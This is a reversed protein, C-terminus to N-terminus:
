RAFRIENVIRDAYLTLSDEIEKKLVGPSDTYDEIPHIVAGAFYDAREWIKIKSRNSFLVAEVDIAVQAKKGSSGMGTRLGWKKVRLVITGGVEALQKNASSETVSMFKGSSTLGEKLYRLLFSQCNLDVLQPKLRNATASDASAHFGQQIATGIVGGTFYGADKPADKLLVVSFDEVVVVEVAIDKIESLASSNLEKKIGTSTNVCGAVLGIALFATYCLWSVRELKFDHDGLTRM